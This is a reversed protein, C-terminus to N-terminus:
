KEESPILGAATKTLGSSMKRGHVDESRQRSFVRAERESLKGPPREAAAAM